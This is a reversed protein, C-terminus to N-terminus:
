INGQYQFLKRWVLRASDRLRKGWNSDSSGNLHPCFLDISFLQLFCDDVCVCAKLLQFDGLRVELNNNKTNKGKPNSKLFTLKLLIVPLSLLRSCKKNILLMLLKVGQKTAGGGCLRLLLTLVFYSWSSVFSFCKAALCGSLKRLQPHLRLLLSVSRVASTHIDLSAATPWCTLLLLKILWHPM